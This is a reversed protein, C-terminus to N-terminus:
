EQGLTYTGNIQCSSCVEIESLASITHACEYCPIRWLAALLDGDRYRKGWHPPPTPLRPDEM